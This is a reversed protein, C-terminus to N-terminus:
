LGRVCLVGGGGQLNDSDSDCPNISKCSSSGYGNISKIAVVNECNRSEQKCLFSGQELWPCAHVPWLRGYTDNRRLCSDM